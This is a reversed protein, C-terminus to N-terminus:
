HIWIMEASEAAPIRVSYWDGNCWCFFGLQTKRIATLDPTSMYIFAAYRGDPPTALVAPGGQPLLPSKRVKTDGQATKRVMAFERSNLQLVYHLQGRQDPMAAAYMFPQALLPDPLVTADRRLQVVEMGYGSDGNGKKQPIGRTGFAQVALEDNSLYELNGGLRFDFPGAFLRDANTALDFERVEQTHPIGSSTPAGTASWYAIKTEDPSMVPYTLNGKPVPVIQFGTGDINMRVIETESLLRLKEASTRDRPLPNREAVIVNGSASFRGHMYFYGPPLAYRQYRSTNFDYLFLGCVRAGQKGICESLLWRNGDPHISVWNYGRGEEESDSDALPFIEKPIPTEARAMFPHLALLCWLLLSVARRCPRLFQHLAM